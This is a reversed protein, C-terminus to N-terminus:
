LVREGTRTISVLRPVGDIMKERVVEVHAYESAVFAAAIKETHTLRVLDADRALGSVWWVTTRREVVDLAASDISLRKSRRYGYKKRLRRRTAAAQRPHRWLIRYHKAGTAKIWFAIWAPVVRKWGPEFAFVRPTSGKTLRSPFTFSMHPQKGTYVVRATPERKV